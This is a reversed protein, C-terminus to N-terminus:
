FGVPAALNPTEAVEESARLWAVILGWARIGAHPRESRILGVQEVATLHFDGFHGSTQTVLAPEENDARRTYALRRQDKGAEQRQDPPVFAPDHTVQSWAIM